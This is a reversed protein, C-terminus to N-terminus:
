RTKAILHDIAFRNVIAPFSTNDQFVEAVVELSAVFQADYSPVPYAFGCEKIKKGARQLGLAASDVPAFRKHYAVVALFSHLKAAVLAHLVDDAVSGQEGAEKERM